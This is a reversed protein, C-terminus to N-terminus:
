TNLTIATTSGYNKILDSKKKSENSIDIIEKFSPKKLCEGFADSVASWLLESAVNSVLTGVLPISSLALTATTIMAYKSSIIFPLRQQRSAYIGLAESWSVTKEQCIHEVEPIIENLYEWSLSPDDINTPTIMTSKAALTEDSSIATATLAPLSTPVNLNAPEHDCISTSITEHYSFDILSRAEELITQDYYSDMQELYKYYDSRRDSTAHQKLNQYFSLSSATADQTEGETEKKTRIHQEINKTLIQHMPTPTKSSPLISHFSAQNLQHILEAYENIKQREDGTLIDCRISPIGNQLQTRLATLIKRRDEITYKGSYLFPFCSFYFSDPNGEIGTTLTHLLFEQVSEAGAYPSIRIYGHQIASLFAQNQNSRVLSLVLESDFTQPMILTPRNGNLISQFLYSEATARKDTPSDPKRARDILDSYM